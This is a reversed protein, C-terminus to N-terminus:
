WPNGSSLIIDVFPKEGELLQESRGKSTYTLPLNPSFGSRPFVLHLALFVVDLRIQNAFFPHRYLKIEM